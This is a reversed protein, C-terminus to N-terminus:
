DEGAEVREEQVILALCGALGIHDGVVVVRTCGICRVRDVRGRDRPAAGRDELVGALLRDGEATATASVDDVNLARMAFLAGVAAGARGEGDVGTGAIVGHGETGRGTAVVPHDAELLIEFRGRETSRGRALAANRNQDVGLTAVVRDRDLVRCAGLACVEGERGVIETIQKGSAGSARASETSMKVATNPSSASARGSVVAAKDVSASRGTFM